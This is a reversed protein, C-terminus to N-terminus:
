ILSLVSNAIGQPDMGHMALLEDASGSEGFRDQVGIRHLVAKPSPSAFEAICEGLASGLAGIVNHEEVSVIHGYRLALTEVMGRDLPKLTHFNVIGVEIGQRHLLDAAHMVNQLVPGYSAIVVGKGQRLTQAEGMRFPVDVPIFNSTEYRSLRIYVPGKHEYAAIVAQETQNGDGPVLIVMGPLSRMLALDVISQHTSGDAGITLGASSGCLKVNSLPLAIQQRIQDFAHSTLFVAFTNAFVIKGMTAMGAATSVMDQEAIGMEFFRQPDVAHIDYSRTSRGLDCDMAVVNRDRQALMALTKGYRDRTGEKPSSETM